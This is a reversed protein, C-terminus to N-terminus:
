RRKKAAPPATKCIVAECPMFHRVLGLVILIMGILLAVSIPTWIWEQDNIVLLAGVIAMTIGKYEYGM